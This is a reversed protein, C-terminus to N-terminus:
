AALLTELRAPVHAETELRLRDYYATMASTKHGAAIMVEREPIGGALSLTIFGARLGQATVHPVGARAVIGRMAHEAQWRGWPAGTREDILLHGRSRGVTARDLAEAALAGLTVLSRAGTRKRSRILLTTHGDHEGRDSVLLERPEAPRLGALAWLHIMASMSPQEHERAHTLLQALDAASLWARTMRDDRRPLRVHEAIPPTLGESHTYRYLSRVPGIASHVSRPSNGAAQLDAAWAEIDARTADLLETDHMDLWAQWRTLYGLYNTQTRPAYPTLFATIIDM